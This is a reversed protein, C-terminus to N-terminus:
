EKWHAQSTRPPAAPQTHPRQTPTPLPLVNKPLSLVNKPPPRPAPFTAFSISLLRLQTCQEFVKAKDAAQSKKELMQEDTRLVARDQLGRKKAGIVGGRCCIWRARAQM